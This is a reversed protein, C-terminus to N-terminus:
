DVSDVARNFTLLGKKVASMKVKYLLFRQAPVLVTLWLEMVNLISHALMYIGVAPGQVSM